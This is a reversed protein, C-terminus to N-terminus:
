KCKLMDLLSDLTKTDRADQEAQAEKLLATAEAIQAKGKEKGAAEAYKRDLAKVTQVYDIGAQKYNRFGAVRQGLEKALSNAVKSGKLENLLDLDGTEIAVRELATYLDSAYLGDTEPKLGNIIDIAEQQRTKVFNDAAEAVAMMDRHTNYNENVMVGDQDIDKALSSLRRQLSNKNGGQAEYRKTDNALKAATLAKKTEPDDSNEIVIDIAKDVAKRTEQAPTMPERSAELEEVDIDGFKEFWAQIRPDLEGAKGWTQKFYKDTLGSYIDRLSQQYRKFEEILRRKEDGVVNLVKDWDKKLLWGEYARAFKESAESSVRIDGEKIGLAKSLVAWRKMYEKSAKGSQAYRFYQEIWDHALEHAVTSEDMNRTKAIFRYEAIYAGRPKRGSRGEQYEPKVNLKSKDISTTSAPTSTGKETARVGTKKVRVNYLDLLNPDQNKLQETSFEVTYIEEGIKVPAEFYVYQVINKKRALTKPNTNHSLDVSGDRNTKIATKLIKDLQRVAANHKKENSKSLPVNSKAIHRVHRGKVQVQLPKSGTELIKGVLSNLYKTIQEISPNSGVEETLDVINDAQNYVTAAEDALLEKRLVKLMEAPSMKAIQRNSYGADRLTQYGLEEIADIEGQNEMINPVKAIKKQKVLEPDRKLLSLDANKLQRVQSRLTRIGMQGVVARDFGAKLLVAQLSEKTALPIEAKAKQLKLDADEKIKRTLNRVAQRRDSEAAQAEKREQRQRERESIREEKEAERAAATRARQQVKRLANKRAILDRQETLMQAMQARDAVVLGSIREPILDVAAELKDEVEEIKAWDKEKAENLAKLEARLDRIEKAYGEIEARRAEPIGDRFWGLENVEGAFLPHSAVDIGRENADTVILAYELDTLADITNADTDSESYTAEVKQRLKGRLSEDQSSAEVTMDIMVDAVQQAKSESLNPFAKRINKTLNRRNIQFAATGLTGGIFAGWAAGQLSEIFADEFTKNNTGDIVRTLYETMGQAFEETAEGATLKTGAKWLSSKLGVKNFAGAIMPEVGGMIEIRGAIAGYALASLGRADKAEFNEFTRDGTREVYQAATEHAYDAAGQVGAGALITNEILKTTAARSLGATRGITGAWGGVASLPLMNGIMTGLQNSLRTDDLGYAENMLRRVLARNERNSYANVMVRRAAKKLPYDRGALDQKLLQGAVLSEGLEPNIRKIKEVESATLAHEDELLISAFWSKIGDWTNPAVDVLGHALSTAFEEPITLDTGATALLETAAPTKWASGIKVGRMLDAGTMYQPGSPAPHDQPADYPARTLLTDEPNALQSARVIAM